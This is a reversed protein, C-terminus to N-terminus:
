ASRTAARPSGRNIMYLRPFRELPLEDGGAVLESGTVAATARLAYEARV